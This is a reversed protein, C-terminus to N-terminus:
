RIKVKKRWFLFYSGAAAILILALGVPFIFDAYRSKSIRAVIPIKVGTNVQVRSEALPKGLVSLSTSIVGGSLKFPDVTISVKQRGGAELTFSAPNAKISRDYDDPYVEFLQVDATPNTVTIEETKARGAALEFELKEPSVQIGAALAM